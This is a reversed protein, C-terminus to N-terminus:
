HLDERHELDTFLLYAVLTTRQSLRQPIFGPVSEFGLLPIIASPMPVFTPKHLLTPVSRNVITLRRICDRLSQLQAVQGICTRSMHLDRRRLRSVDLLLLRRLSGRCLVPQTVTIRQRESSKQTLVPRLNRLIRGALCQMCRNQNASSAYLHSLVNVKHRYEAASCRTPSSLMTLPASHVLILSNKYTDILLLICELGFRKRAMSSLNCITQDIYANFIVVRPLTPGIHMSYLESYSRTKTM